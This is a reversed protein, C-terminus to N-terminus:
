SADREPPTGQGFWRRHLSRADSLPVFGDNVGYFLIVPLHLVRAKLVNDFRYSVLLRVPAWPYLRAAVLPVSDIPGFLLLGAAEVRTAFLM